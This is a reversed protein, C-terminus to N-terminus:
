EATESAEVEFVSNLLQALRIGGAYLRSKLLENRNAAYRYSLSALNAEPNRDNVIDYVEDRHDISEQAWTRPGSGFEIVPEAAFEQELFAAQESFSLGEQDLLGSDWLSHLKTLEDFWEVTISNGGRDGGRGVHLPQHIDGVFHVVLALATLRLSGGYPEVGSGALLLGFRKGKEEDGGVIAAFYDIAELVNNPMELDTFLEPDCRSRNLDAKRLLGQDITEKDEVTLFHWPKVCDWESFSRIFDPWTSLLALSQRGAIARVESRAQPSLYDEGVQAVIRHGNAGWAYAVSPALTLVMLAAVPIILSSIRRKM